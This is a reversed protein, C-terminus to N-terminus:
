ALMLLNGITGNTESSSIQVRMLAVMDVLKIQTQVHSDSLEGVMARLPEELGHHHAGVGVRRSPTTTTTTLEV